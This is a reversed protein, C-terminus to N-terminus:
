DIYFYDKTETSTVIKIWDSGWFVATTEIYFERLKSNRQLIYNWGLLVM